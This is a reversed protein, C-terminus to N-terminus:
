CGTTGIPSDGSSPLFSAWGSTDTIVVEENTDDKDKVETYFYSDYLDYALVATLCDTVLSVNGNNNSSIYCSYRSSSYATLDCSFSVYFSNSYADDVDSSTITLNSNSFSPSFYLTNTSDSIKHAKLTQKVMENENTDYYYFTLKAGAAVKNYDHGLIFPVAYKMKDTQWLYTEGFSMAAGDIKHIVNDSTKIGKITEAM